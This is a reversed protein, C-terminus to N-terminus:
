AGAATRWFRLSDGVVDRAGADCLGELCAHFASAHEPLGLTRLCTLIRTIRLFNHNHPRLWVRRREAFADTMAVLPHGAADSGISLGYFGIMLDFSRLLRERLAPDEAFATITQPGILPASPNVGSRSGLPFLWQIYDHVDELAEHDWSWLDVILRGASDPRQGRYFEVIPDRTPSATAV